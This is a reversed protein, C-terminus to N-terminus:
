PALAQACARMRDAFVPNTDLLELAMGTWQSGQGPFVFVVRHGSGAAGGSEVTDLGRLLEERGGGVVVARHPLTARTTVLSWGVDTPDLRPNDTVFSRLREIQRRLGADSDASLVWPVATPSAGREGTDGPEDAPDPAQELVVHANTGSVGFASVGARRPRDARPWATRETLLEVAGASWDVQPTPEDVHLTKPLMGHRLAMVMKIVGSVGAAAQAHGINSKLSGLLLPRDADRGQGYTALLAQAEIPDGLTTGTGHAEVADVDATSLGANALAQQIVRQQSPGNPATLGNSTGDQNVASGRVVALVQHGNREADSLREVLLMGVGEAWGTGDAAAAFSKCRGDAALGRQRSFEVFTAPSAMVTVGGALAMSCEGRRLSECALHLAVLSSSCAADVTLAPGELGLTYAIRGSMVSTAAGTLAYGEDADSPYGQTWGGVFVGTRSARVSDPAIGAREFVEWASQLLLRQQPDMALAERPSIGFFAADFEAADHLFGGTRVYSKGARDPDPDYLGETDWGRDEPFESLAERGEGVLQWLDEPSRIDGPLRCSMAVIAIPEDSAYPTVAADVLQGASPLELLEARLLGAVARCTPHDFLLTAPLRLGTAGNLRTRLEVATLSDFGLERFPVAPDVASSDRHGLLGAAHERVLDMLAREQEASPLPALRARLGEHGTTTGTSDREKRVGPLEGILPSPRSATFAPAFTEWDVDAVTLCPEGTGGAQRLAAVALEPPMPRLGGRRLREEDEGALSGGWTGWAMSVGPLGRARRQQALTDLFANAAAYGAQGTGGWVASASSFLVFADLEAEGVLEDLHAAGSVKAHFVDAYADLDADIAGGFQVTGALHVVATLEDALPDFVDALAARDTVDCAVITVRAGLATLEAELASAGPAHSGRRGLLVLHDAGARALWRAVHAGLAGTGGTVLVTGRPSWTSEPGAVPASELRRGLVASSRVAIQDEDGGEALVTAFRRLVQADCVEPLDILGGWRGAPELGAARGFGWVAAQAPSPGTDAEVACVASRTVCWLPAEVGATAAACLLEVTSALGQPLASHTVHQREDVALLSVIGAVDDARAADALLEALASREAEDPRVEITRIRAGHAALARACAASWEDDAPVVALWTGPLVGTDSPDSLPKWAIRYRWGEVTSQERRRRRWSSLAPVVGGLSAGDVQLTAALSELDGREVADWFRADVADVGAPELWFREHQFAYTPLDIRRAHSGTFAPEWDVPVGATHLHALATLFQTPGGHDRRLSGTAVINAEATDAIDRIGTTLVPHPSTEIFTTHGHNLLTHITTQFDVTHR